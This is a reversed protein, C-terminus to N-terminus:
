EFISIDEFLIVFILIQILIIMVAEFTDFKGDHICRKVFWLVGAIATLQLVIFPHLTISIIMGLIGFILLASQLIGGISNGLAVDIDHKIASVIAIGHEPVAGAAGLILAITIPSLEFSTTGHLLEEVCWTLSEGGFFIGTFGMVLMLITMPKSLLLEENDKKHSKSDKEEKDDDVKQMETDDTVIIKETEEEKRGIIFVLYIVYSLALLSAVPKTLKADTLVFSDSDLVHIYEIIGFVATMLLAVIAWRILPSEKKELDAPVKIEWKKWTAVLIAFGLILTNFGAASLVTIVAILEQGKLLLMVAIVAEPLNSALSSFIGAVYESLGVYKASSNLGEVAWESPRFALWVGVLFGLIIIPVTIHELTYRLIFFVIIVTLAIVAEWFTIHFTKKFRKLFNM